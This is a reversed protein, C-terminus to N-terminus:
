RKERRTSLMRRPEDLRTLYDFTCLEAHRGFGIAARARALQDVDLRSGMRRLEAWNRTYFSESVRRPDVTSVHANWRYGGSSLRVQRLDELRAWFEESEDADVVWTTVVLVPGEPERGSGPVPLEPTVPIEMADTAPLPFRLAALGLAVLAVGTMSLAIPVGVVTALAGVVLAGIPAVGATSLLFVSMARGRVWDPTLLQVVSNLTGGVWVAVMGAAFLVIVLVPLLRTFAIAIVGLGFALISWEVFGRNVLRAVRDRATGGVLAGLGFATLLLGYIDSGGGPLESSLSPLLSGLGAAFVGFLITVTFTARYRRSHRLYRLGTLVSAIVSDSDGTREPMSTAIVAVLMWAICGAAVAFAWGPGATAVLVGGLAPGLAAAIGGSASQLGVAASVLRSGVLEPVLAQKAPGFFVGGTGFAVGCAVLLEPTATGTWTMVAYGVSAATMTASAVILVTRRKALDAVAGAVLSFILLPILPATVALSVWFPSGTMELVLWASAIAQVTQGVALFLGAFLLRRFKTV